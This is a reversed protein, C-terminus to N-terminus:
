TAERLLSTFAIIEGEVLAEDVARERLREIAPRMIRGKFRIREFKNGTSDEAKFTQIFDVETPTLAILDEIWKSMTWDDTAPTAVEALDVTNKLAFTFLGLVDGIRTFAPSGDDIRDRDLDDDNFQVLMDQIFKQQFTNAGVSLQLIGSYTFTRNLKTNTLINAM